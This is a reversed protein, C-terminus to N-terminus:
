AVAAGPATGVLRSAAARSASALQGSCAMVTSGQASCRHFSRRDGVPGRVEVVEIGVENGVRVGDVLLEPGVARNGVGVAIVADPDGGAVFVESGDGVVVVPEGGARDQDGVAGLRGVVEPEVRWGDGLVRRVVGVDAPQQERDEGRLDDGVVFGDGPGHGVVEDVPEDGVASAVGGGVERLVNRDLDDRAHEADGVAVVGLETVPDVAEDFVAGDGAVGGECGDELDAAVEGSVDVLVPGAGAVVDDGVEEVGAHGVASWEGVLLDEAHAHQQSSCRAVWGSSRRRRRSSGSSMLEAVSSNRRTNAGTVM